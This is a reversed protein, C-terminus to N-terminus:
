LYWPAEPKNLRSKTEENGETARESHLGSAMCM